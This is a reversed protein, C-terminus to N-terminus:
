DEPDRITDILWYLIVIVMALIIGYISLRVVAIICAIVFAIILLTFIITM